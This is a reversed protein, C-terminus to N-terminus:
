NGGPVSTASFNTNRLQKIFNDYKYDLCKTSYADLLIQNVQAYRQLPTTDDLSNVQTM